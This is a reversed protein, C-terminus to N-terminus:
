TFHLQNYIVIVTQGASLTTAADIADTFTINKNGVTYDDTSAFANPFSSGIVAVVDRLNPIPFTKTSGDLQSNLKEFAVGGTRGMMARSGGRPISRLENKLMDIEKKLDNVDELDWRQGEPLSKVKNRIQEPTDLITEKIEPISKRIEEIKLDYVSLDPLLPILDKLKSIESKFESSMEQLKSTTSSELDISLKNIADTTEKLLQRQEIMEEKVEEKSMSVVGDVDERMKRLINKFELLVKVLEDRKVLGKELSDIVIQFRDLTAM